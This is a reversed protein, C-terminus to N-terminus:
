APTHQPPIPSPKILRATIAGPEASVALASVVALVVLLVRLWAPVQLGFIWAFCGFFGFGRLQKAFQRWDIGVGMLVVGM